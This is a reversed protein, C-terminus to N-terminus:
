PSTFFSRIKEEIKRRAKELVEADRCFETPSTFVPQCYAKAADRDGLLEKLQHLYEYDELGDRLNALRVSGVPTGDQHPYLLCGDGYILKGSFRWSTEWRHFLGQEPQIAYKPDDKWINVGWYLLGDYKQEFSQWGLIRSEILPFRFMINAYPYEPGCCIYSWVEKGAERCKEAEQPYYRSTLPCTWDVNLRKLLELDTGIYATTFTAIEPFHEKVMGFFETMIPHFDKGREDFAYIYAQSILGRRRLEEVYPRLQEVFRAKQEPTYFKEPSFCRWPQNGRPEMLNLVNFKGLGRGRYHELDDLPALDTRSIDGMPTLRHQLMFEGYVRRLEPTLKGYVRELFGDMLAFGNALNGEKPLTMSSVTVELAVEAAPANEPRLTVTGRYTGPRTGEPAYVTIWFSVTQNQLFRGAKMPLLLEPWFGPRGENDAPHLSLENAELYGVQKWDLHEKPLVVSTDSDLVLDSLEVQVNESDRPSLVAIQFSEYEHRALFLKRSPMQLSEKWAADKQPLTVPNGAKWGEASWSVTQRLALNKPLSHLFVRNMSSETWVAYDRGPLHSRCDVSIKREANEKGEEVWVLTQSDVPKEPRYIVEVNTGEAPPISLLLKRHEGEELWVSTRHEIEKWYKAPWNIMGQLALSGTGVLGGIAHIDMELPLEEVFIDDFLVTGRMQRFLAFVEIRKIPREPYFVREAKQWFTKETSFVAKQGWVPTGDDYFIDLYIDFDQRPNGNEQIESECKASGGFRIPKWLPKEFEIIQRAGSTGYESTSVRLQNDVITTGKGGLLTWDAAGNETLVEFHANKLYNEQALIPANQWIGLVLSTALLVLLSPKKM